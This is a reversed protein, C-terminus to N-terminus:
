SRLIVFVTVCLVMKNNNILTNTITVHKNVHSEHESQRNFM